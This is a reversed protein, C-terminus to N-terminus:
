SPPRLGWARAARRDLHVLREGVVRPVAQVSVQPERAARDGDALQGGAQRQVRVGQARMEAPELLDPEHRPLGAPGRRGDASRLREVHRDVDLRALTAVVLQEGVDQGTQERGGLLPVVGLLERALPARVQHAAGSRPRTRLSRGARVQGRQLLREGPGPERRPEPAGALLGHLDGQTVAREAIQEVLMTVEDARDM